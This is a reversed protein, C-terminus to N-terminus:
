VGRELERKRKKDATMVTSHDRGFVRGAEPYSLVCTDLTVVMCEHRARAVSQHRRRTFVEALTVGHRACIRECYKRMGLRDLGAFIDNM